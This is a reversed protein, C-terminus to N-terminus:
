MAKLFEKVYVTPRYTLNNLYICDDYHRTKSQQIVSMKDWMKLFIHSIMLHMFFCSIQRINSLSMKNKKIKQIINLSLTSFVYYLINQEYMWLINMCM